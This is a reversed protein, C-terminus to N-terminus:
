AEGPSENSAVLRDDVAEWDFAAGNSGGRQRVSEEM